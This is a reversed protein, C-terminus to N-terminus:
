GGPPPPPPAKAGDGPPPPPPATKTTATPPPAGKPSDGTPPPPAGKATTPPPPPAGPPSGKQAPTPAPPPPVGKGAPPTAKTTPPTPPVSKGGAQEPTPPPPAGPVPPPPGAKPTASDKLESDKSPSSAVKPANYDKPLIIRPAQPPALSADKPTVSQEKPQAPQPIPPPPPQPIPPPPPTPQQIPPPAPPTAPKVVVPNPPVLSAPPQPLTPASPNPPVAAGTQIATPKSRSSLDLTYTNALSQVPGITSNLNPNNNPPPPPPATPKPPESAKRPSAAATNTASAQKTKVANKENLKAREQEWQLLRQTYTMPQPDSRDRESKRPPSLEEWSQYKHTTPSTLRVPTTKKPREGFVTEWNKELKSRSDPTTPSYLKHPSMWAGSAHHLTRHTNTYGTLTPARVMQPSASRQSTHTVKDLYGGSLIPKSLTPIPDHYSSQPIAAPPPKRLPTHHRPPSVASAAGATPNELPVATRASLLKGIVLLRRRKTLASCTLFVPAGQTTDIALSSLDQQISLGVINSLLMDVVVEEEDGETITLAESTIHVNVDTIVGSQSRPDQPSSFGIGGAVFFESVENLDAPTVFASDARRIAAELQELRALVDPDTSAAQQPIVFSSPPPPPTASRLRGTPTPPRVGANNNNYNNNTFDQQMPIAVKPSPPYNFQTSNFGGGPMLHPYPAVFSPSTPGSNNYANSNGLKSPGSYPMTYAPVSRQPQPPPPPPPQSGNYQQWSQPTPYPQQFSSSRPSQAARGLGQLYPPGSM